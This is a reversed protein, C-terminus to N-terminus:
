NVTATPKDHGSSSLQLREIHFYLYDVNQCQCVVIYM